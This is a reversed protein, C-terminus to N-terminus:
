TEHVPNVTVTATPPLGNEGAEIGRDGRLGPDM